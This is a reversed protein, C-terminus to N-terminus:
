RVDGCGADLVRILRAGTALSQPGGDEVLAAAHGARLAATGDCLAESSTAVGRACGSVFFGLITVRLLMQMTWGGGHREITSRKRPMAAIV